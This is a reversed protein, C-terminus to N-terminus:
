LSSHLGGEGKAGYRFEGNLLEWDGGRALRRIKDNSDGEAKQDGSTQDIGSGITTDIHM